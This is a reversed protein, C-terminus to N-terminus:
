DKIPTVAGKSVWDISGAKVGTNVHMKRNHKMMPKTPLLGLYTKVFEAHTLDAFQNIGLTYTSKKANHAQIMKYNGAFIGLRYAAYDPDGQKKNFKVTFDKYAKIIEPDYAQLTAPKNM